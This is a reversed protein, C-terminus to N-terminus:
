PQEKEKDIDKFTPNAFHDQLLRHQFIYGGGVKQLIIRDTAQDLIRIFNWPLKETSGLILRIIVQQLCAAGGVLLSFPLATLGVSSLMIPIAFLLGSYGWLTQNHDYNYGWAIPLSLPLLIPVLFLSIGIANRLSQWFGENPVVTKAVRLSPRWVGISEGFFFVMGGLAISPLGIFQLFAAITFLADAGLALYIIADVFIEVM